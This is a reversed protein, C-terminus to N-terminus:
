SLSANSSWAAPKPPRSCRAGATAGDFYPIPEAGIDRLTISASPDAQKIRAVMHDALQRSKSRDGLISSLIVLTKM